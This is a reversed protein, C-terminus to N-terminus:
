VNKMQFDNLGIGNDHVILILMIGDATQPLLCEVTPWVPIFNEFSHRAFMRVFIDTDEEATDSREGM